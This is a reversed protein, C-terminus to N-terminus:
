PKPSVVDKPLLAERWRVGLDSNGKIKRLYGLHFRAAFWDKAGRAEDFSRAHWEPKPKAYEALRRAMEAQFAAYKAKDRVVIKGNEIFAVRKGDPLDARTVFTLGAPIPEDELLQGTTLSWIM